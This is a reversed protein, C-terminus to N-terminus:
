TRLAYGGLAVGVVRRFATSFASVSRYGCAAAVETLRAGGFRLRDKALAVRLRLLYDMPSLGVVSVFREAFALEARAETGHTEARRAIAVAPV